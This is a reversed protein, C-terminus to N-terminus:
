FIKLKTTPEYSLDPPTGAPASAAAKRTQDYNKVRTFYREAAWLTIKVSGVLLVLAGIMAVTMELTAQGRSASPRPNSRLHGRISGDAIIQTRYRRSDANVM